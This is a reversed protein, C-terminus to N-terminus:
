ANNWCNDCTNTGLQPKMEEGCIECRRGERWEKNEAEAGVNYGNQYIEKSTLKNPNEKLGAKFGDQYLLRGSNAKRGQDDLGAVYAADIADIIYQPIDHEGSGLKVLDHLNKRWELKTPQSHSSKAIDHEIEYEIEIRNKWNGVGSKWGCTPCIYVYYTTKTKRQTSMPTLDEKFM